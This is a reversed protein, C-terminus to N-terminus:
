NNSVNTQKSRNYRDRLEASGVVDTIITRNLKELEVNAAEEKKKMDQIVEQRGQEILEQRERLRVLLSTLWELVAKVM